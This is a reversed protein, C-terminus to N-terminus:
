MLSQTKGPAFINPISNVLIFTEAVELIKIEERDIEVM